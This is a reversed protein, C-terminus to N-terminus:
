HAECQITASMAASLCAIWTRTSKRRWVPTPASGSMGVDREPASVWSGVSSFSMASRCFDISSSYAFCLLTWSLAPTTAFKNLAASNPRPRGQTRTHLNINTYCTRRRDEHGENGDSLRTSFTNEEHSKM